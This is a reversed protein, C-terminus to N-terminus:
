NRPALEGADVLLVGHGLEGALREYEQLLSTKGVGMSGTLFLLACSPAALAESFAQLELERAVFHRHREDSLKSALTTKRPVIMSRRESGAHAAALSIKRHYKTPSSGFRAPM